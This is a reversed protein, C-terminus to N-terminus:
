GVRKWWLSLFVLPEADDAFATHVTRAPIEVPTGPRLTMRRNPLEVYGTGRDVVWIEASEHSHGDTAGGPPVTVMMAGFNIGESVGEMELNTTYRGSM